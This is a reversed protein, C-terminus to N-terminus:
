PCPEITQIAGAQLHKQTSEVAPPFGGEAAAYPLLSPKPRCYASTFNGVCTLRKVTTCQLRSTTYVKSTTDMARM